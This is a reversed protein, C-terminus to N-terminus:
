DPYLTVTLDYETGSIYLEEWPMRYGDPVSLLHVHYEEPDGDFTVRGDSGTWVRSYEGNCFGVAVGEIPKGNVDRFCLVCRAEQRSPAPYAGLLSDFLSTFAETSTKAGIEVAVVRRDRDVLLTTPIASGGMEGFLNASDRGIPFSLGYDSAFSHLVDFSDEYEVSMAIVDVRSGYQKWAEELYPFEMRCPGCWTAWFNILVLDHTKLSDSLTFTSGDITSVTFDNLIEGQYEEPSAFAYGPCQILVLLFVLLLALTRKKM